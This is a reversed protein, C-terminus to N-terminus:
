EDKINSKYLADITYRNIASQIKKGQSQQLRIANLVESVTYGHGDTYYVVKDKMNMHNILWQELMCDFSYDWNRKIEEIIEKYKDEVETKRIYYIGKENIMDALNEEGMQALDVASTIVVSILSSRRRIEKLTSVGLMEGKFFCDLFIVTKYIKNCDIYSWAEDPTGFCSIEANPYNAKMDTVWSDNVDDDIVIINFDAM